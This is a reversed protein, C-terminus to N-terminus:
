GASRGGAGCAGQGGGGLGRRRRHSGAAGRALGGRLGGDCDSPNSAMAILNLAMAIPNSAMAITFVHKLCSELDGAGGLGQRSRADCTGAGHGQGACRPSM